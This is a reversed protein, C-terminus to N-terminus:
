VRHVHVGAAELARVASEPAQDDTVVVDIAALECVVAMAARSFKAGDVALISRRASALLAQKVSADGLDHAMVNGEPSVGCCGLVVTDFRLAAIGALALPGVMALEGPRVEGGPLMLRVSASGALAMTAHLSLPMVTLRHGTLARATEVVTTGSDLGVAEGDAILEAVAAAIRRKSDVAEIERMAFPLEEGRMLLNVAGGRVRRAVGRAVLVDLDRRITLEATGFEAAATAVEVRGDRRLVDVLESLRQSGDM